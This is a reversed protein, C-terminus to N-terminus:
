ARRARLAFIVGLGSGLLVLAGPEPTGTVNSGGPNVTDFALVDLAFDNGGFATNQNLISLTASTNSGSNWTTYFQQWLGTTTSATFISGVQSGNISFQLQAPSSGVASAVWTSFFYDTNATVTVMQSWLSVNATGAGNVVMMDLSSDPGNFSAFGAHCANPSAAVTYTGESFCNGVVPTVYTYSSSFGSNGSSFNGNVILNSASAASMSMLACGLAFTIKRFNNKM